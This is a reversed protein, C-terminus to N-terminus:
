RTQWQRGKTPCAVLTRRGFEAEDPILWTGGGEKDLCSSANTGDIECPPNQRHM